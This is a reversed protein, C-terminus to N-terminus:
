RAGDHEGPSHNTDAFVNTLERLDHTVPLMHPQALGSGAHFVQLGDLRFRLGVVAAAQPPRRADGYYILRDRGRLSVAPHDLRVFVLVSAGVPELFDITGRIPAAEPATLEVDEPRIGLVYAGSAPMTPMRAGTLLAAPERGEVNILNMSPSGIFEAVFLNAPRNYVEDPTGVQLLDGHAMVAIRDSMTMAEMQDHTVYLSTIGLRRHLRKLETRMAERLKLDLNSLPEDMLFAAPRRIIARGVAVRQRQGGSLQGPRKDLLDGIGLLSAVDRARAAIEARPIRAVELNLTLNEFVTMHPYLAYSQFVMAINRDGPPRDTVDRGNIRIRGASPEEVGAVLRLTSTKGCGSPGLLCLFEGQAVSLRLRKLAVTGDDYTKELDEIEISM